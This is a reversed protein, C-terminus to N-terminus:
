KGDPKFPTQPFAYGPPVHFVPPPPLVPPMYPQPGAVMATKVEVPEDEAGAEELEQACVACTRGLEDVVEDYVEQRLDDRLEAEVDKRIKKRHYEILGDYLEGDIRGLYQQICEFHITDCAYSQVIDRGSKESQGV